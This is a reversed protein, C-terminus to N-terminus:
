ESAKKGIAEMLKDFANTFQKVSDNELIETIKNINIGVESLETMVRSAQEVNVELRLAPDGHDRYAELTKLPISNITNPGILAEIYKIDSYDPDKSSTSAWLLRQPLAGLKLFQESEYIEKYINYALKASSIAVQGRIKSAFHAQEVGSATFEEEMSDIVADIRSLFFSAVSVINKVPKGQGIRDSIGGMYAEIVQRYRPLGFLLTVNINIGESILQRIAPLGASTAPVKILVNPRNLVNWLSRAEEITGKTDHALHPNVGLSVYGDKGATKEYVSRFEDAANLVDRQSLAEYIAKPVTRMSALSHIDLDYIQSETIANEFVSPNSTIGRLGDEEILRRLDGNAIMDLHFYDL